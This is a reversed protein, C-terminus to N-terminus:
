WYMNTQTTGHPKAEQIASATVKIFTVNDPTLENINELGLYSIASRVGGEFEKIVREASYLPITFDNSTAGEACDPQKNYHDKQFDASAQGRYKKVLKGSFDEEWGASEITPAFRNGMMISDAGAALYKVADGPNRVGGDAILEVQDRLGARELERHILYVASLQPVGCGTKLRTTCASGPGIGIRLHTCGSNVARLAAEPTCISGSMLYGVYPENAYQEYLKQVEITDGHAIDINISVPTDFISLREATYWEKTGVAFFVNPDNSHAQLTQTWEEKLFRCVVPYHGMERMKSTLQLGTVTDMPSSYIFPKLIAESRSSLVGQRPVLSVDDTTLFEKDLVSIVKENQPVFEGYYNDQHNEMQRGQRTHM